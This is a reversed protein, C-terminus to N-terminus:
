WDLPKRTAWTNWARERYSVTIQLGHSNAFDDVAGKVVRGTKDKTGDYNITWDQGNRNPGDTQVVYDHGALIGGPKLLPWWHNLDELVGKYDHRADVYIFDFMEGRGRYREACSTTYNHCVEISTRKEFQKVRNLAERKYKLHVSDKVNAVDDYKTQSHWLDVLVYKRCSPWRQLLQAAFGGRQVGLEVGTRAGESQLINGLEYRYKFTPVGLWRSNTTSVPSVVNVFRMVILGYMVLLGAMFPALYPVHRRVQERLNKM